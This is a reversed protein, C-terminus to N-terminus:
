VARPSLVSKFALSEVGLADVVVMATLGVGGLSVASLDAVSSVLVVVSSVLVVVMATLFVFGLVVFDPVASPLLVINITRM